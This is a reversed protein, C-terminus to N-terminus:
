PTSETPTIADPNLTPAFTQLFKDAASEGIADAIKQQTSDPLRRGIRSNLIRNIVKARVQLNKIVRLEESSANFTQSSSTGSGDDFEVVVKNGQTAVSFTGDVTTVEVVGSETVVVTTGGNTFVAFNTGRAAAVAGPTQIQYDVDAPDLGEISSLVGGKTIRGKFRRKEVGNQVEYATEKIEMMSNEMVEMVIGPSQAITASGNFDTRITAGPPIVDGKKLVPLTSSNRLLDMVDQGPPAMMVTGEVEQVVLGKSFEEVGADTKPAQTNTSNATTTELFPLPPAAAPASEVVRQAVVNTKGFATGKSNAKDYNVGTGGLVVGPNFTLYEEGKVEEHFANLIRAMEFIAGSGVQESFIQSSHWRTGKVSLRWGSSGRRAVVARGSKGGEFGLAIDSQKGADILDKRSISQPSGPKEEDGTYVVIIQTDDMAGAAYLAKLAYLLVVNGGKMDSAGPGKAKKNSLTEWQQFPSDKEFVTDFHGILLLRKGKRGKHEAIMHGARNVEEPMDVWRVEMGMAELEPRFLRGVERVGEHNLTGSNINVAEELFALAEGIHEDIYAVMKREKKDLKQASLPSQFIFLLSLIFFTYSLKM